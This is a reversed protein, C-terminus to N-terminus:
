QRTLRAEMDIFMEDRGTEVFGHIRYFERARNLKAIHLRISKKFTRAHDLELRLVFSGIGRNQFEPLILMEHLFVHDDHESSCIAGVPEHNLEIIRFQLQQIKNEFRSQQSRNDWLGFLRIALTEYAARNLMLLFEHDASIAPRIQVNKM